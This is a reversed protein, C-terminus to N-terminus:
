EKWVWFLDRLLVLLPAAPQWHAPAFHLFALVLVIVGTIELHHRTRKTM